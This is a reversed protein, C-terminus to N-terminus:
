APTVQPRSQNQQVLRAPPGRTTGTIWSSILMSNDVKWIKWGGCRNEEEVELNMKWGKEIEGFEGFGDCDWPPSPKLRRRWSWNWKGGQPLSQARWDPMRSAQLHCVVCELIGPSRAEQWAHRPTLRGGRHIPWVSRVGNQDNQNGTRDHAWRQQPPYLPTHGLRWAEVLPWCRAFDAWFDSWHRNIGTSHRKAVTGRVQHIGHQFPSWWTPPHINGGTYDPCRTRSVLSGTAKRIWPACVGVLYPVTRISVM